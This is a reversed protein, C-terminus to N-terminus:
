YAFRKKLHLSSIDLHRKVNQQLAITLKIFIQQEENLDLYSFFQQLKSKVLKNTVLSNNLKVSQEILLSFNKLNM